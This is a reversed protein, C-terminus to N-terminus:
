RVLLRHARAAWSTLQAHAKHTLWRRVLWCRLARSAPHTLTLAARINVRGRVLYGSFPSPWIGRAVLHAPGQPPLTEFSWPDFAQLAHARDLVAALHDVRWAAPHLSNFYPNSEAIRDVARGAVRGLPETPANPSADLRVYAAGHEAAFAICQAILAGPVPASPAHDDLVLLVWDSPALGRERLRAIGHRLVGVWDPCPAVIVDPSRCRGGDTVIWIPPHGPWLQHMSAVGLDAVPAYRRCTPVIVARPALGSEGEDSARVVTVEEM